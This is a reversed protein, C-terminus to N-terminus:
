AYTTSQVLHEERFVLSINMGPSSTIVLKGGIQRSFGHILTMGLSRSRSPDYNAPLGVGNDAIVLEYSSQELRQLRLSITGARGEPFAYKFANTIAENIILGLPVALTVDLEIDEVEVEFRIPQYLSYSDSLYAVVGEIYSYMPIRALSETQYLKQHILVIAQVRHQSEQIASLAAKDQLSDAQSELLSMVVQLNNKVRHHIEKLLCEKETLLQQLLQNKHKIEEYRAQLKEYSVPLKGQQNYNKQSQEKSSQKNHWISLFRMYLFRLLIALFIPSGISSISLIKETKSGSLQLKSDYFQQLLPSRENTIYQLEPTTNQLNKLRTLFSINYTCITAEVDEDMRIQTIEPNAVPIICPQAFLNAKYTIM